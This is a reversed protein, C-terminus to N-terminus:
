EEDCKEQKGAMAWSEQGLALMKKAQSATAAADAKVRSSVISEEESLVEEERINETLM